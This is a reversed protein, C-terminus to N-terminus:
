KLICSDQGLLDQLQTLTDTRGDFNFKAKLQLAQQSAQDYVIVRKQGPHQALIKQVQSFSDREQNLDAFKLYLKKSEKQVQNAEEMTQVKLQIEGKRVEVKGSVVLAEGEKLYPLCQRYVNPFVVLSIQGTQDALSVFAMPQQNRTQTKRVQVLQGLVQCSQGEELDAIFSTKLDQRLSDYRSLPHSSFYFGTLEEEYQILDKPSFEELDEQRPKLTDFLTINGSSKAVFEITAELGALMTRRNPGIQDFAGVLILAEIPDQNLFQSDIKECFDRLSTFAGKEKRIELIHNVFPSAVGKVMKIGVQIGEQRVTFSGLSQNIDPKLLKIKRARVEHAYKYIKAKNGWDAKMVAAFFSKPQHAKFYAMHYALMSYAVAHARNFGYNAFKAIYDYVERAVSESYGKNLAGRIFKERGQDMESQIKKSMTRRLQDAESLSYGALQTAVQMVQEQYVIIGYTVELIDKLDEHPYIIKEQGHKRNIYNEIQGMPGPRYLANTAVIDEFSTPQLQRLVKKIGEKEFQFVGNTDGRAFLDLTKPDDIPIDQKSIGGGQGEYQSFNLCDALITLNKLSLFDMKLLGVAEVDGMTFQTNPIKGNGVQLPLSQVLPQDSMVVGAAHTSYNRPLGEIDQAMAFIRENEHSQQVLKQLDKSEDYAKSLSINVTDPIAQSWTKMDENKYGLTRMIERISSKAAFTGFTLIQAVHDPGYKRYVYDLIVQRKNDPFDLDIDPMTFRDKNLFREFLLDYHIPDVGTIYLTYSVLSAAASGRGFGTEIKEQRAFQMLDWVILFYDSFGMSSIVALEKDLRDQYDQGYGPVREQLGKQALKGLYSDKTEGEPLDFAPLKAQGLDLSWDVSQAVDETNKLAQGLGVQNFFSEMEQPSRLAYNERAQTDFQIKQNAKIHSLIELTSVQSEELCRVDALALVKLGGSESLTRALQYIKQDQDPVLGLYAHPLNQTMATLNSAQKDLLDAKVKPDSSPFITYLDQAVSRVQDLKIAQKNVQLDTSLALLAQYGAKNKALLTVTIGEDLDARLGMIPKIGHKKAEQYFEVAGHMVNHDTLAVAEMGLEKLRDMLLPLQITSAMLTYASTVQLHTFTM